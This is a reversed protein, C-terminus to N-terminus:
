VKLIYASHVFGYVKGNIRIYYWKSGDAANITDCVEVKTGKSLTPYSKLKSNNTGAWTRVNLASATVKGTWQPTKNLAGDNSSTNSLSTAQKTIYAASVFGYKTGKDGDIQIYYWPDGDKDKVTDCVGVKTGQSIMPYSKLKDNETGAYTRVNLQATNVVGTWQVEKCITSETKPASPQPAAPEAVDYKPAAYGRIYGNGVSLVRRAVAEGKNGEIVTIQGNSVSEVVGIHDAHGDNPQTKDGWNYLIIYGPEPTIRGDEIWIGLEKFIEIHKECGCERGILDIMGAKIAAASITTDCWEDTYKVAYGRPLPKQSNYLDIIQKFKGNAESFGIWSRMVDLYAQATRGMNVVEKKVYNDYFQQGLSARYAQVSASTNAPREYQLLVVDSAERLSSTSTLVKWVTSYGKLEQILFQVQMDEDGISKGVSRAYNLLSQKRSWYTWQALGYGASDRVFNTYSGDDVARTYSDDSFNLRVECTNQLNNSKLNSEAKLNGLLGCAGHPTLGAKLLTEYIKQSM